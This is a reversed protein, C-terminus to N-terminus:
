GLKRSIIEQGLTNVDLAKYVLDSERSQIGEDRM